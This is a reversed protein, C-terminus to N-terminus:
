SVVTYPPLNKTVGPRVEIKGELLRTAKGNLANVMVLDYAYMGVSFTVTTEKPINISIQGTVGEDELVIMANDLSLDVISVVSQSFQRIQMFALYSGLSYSNNATDKWNLSVNFTANQYIADPGIFNFVGTM